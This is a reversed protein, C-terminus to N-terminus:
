RRERATRQRAHLVHREAGMDAVGLAAERMADHQLSHRKVGGLGIQGAVQREAVARAGGDSAGDGGALDVQVADLGCERSRMRGCRRGGGCGGRRRRRRGSRGRVGRRGGVRSAAPHNRVGGQREARQELRVGIEAELDARQDRAARRVAVDGAVEREVVALQAEIRERHLQGAARHAQRERGVRGLRPRRDGGRELRGPQCELRQERRQAQRVLRAARDFDIEVELAGAARRVLDRGAGVAMKAEGGDAGFDAIAHEGVRDAGHQRCAFRGCIPSGCPTLSTRHKAVLISAVPPRATTRPSSSSVVSRETSPEPETFRASSARAKCSRGSTRVPPAPTITGSRTLPVNRAGFAATSALPATPSAARCASAAPAFDLGVSPMMM